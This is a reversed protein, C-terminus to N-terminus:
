SLQANYQVEKELLFEAILQGTYEVDRLSIIENATHMYRLPISLLATKIGQGTVTIHDANTGTTRSMVDHQYPINKEKALEVLEKTLKSDLIPAIGISPGGGLKITEDKATYPDDGFGVDVVISDCHCGNAFAGTKAGSGGTEERTSFMVTIGVNNLKGKVLDLAYLIAAIACRDDFAGSSIKDGLLEYQFNRLTIRDGVSLIKTIEDKNFGTDVAMQKIDLKESDNNKSLHPPVSCVVGFIEDKGHLIVEAGTLVRVDTGGVKDFLVFGNDDFGRVVLGIQDLHADLLINYNGQKTTGIVNGMCDTKVSMYESLLSACVDAACFEAGSTGQKDALNFCLEKLNMM